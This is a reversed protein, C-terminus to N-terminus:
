IRMIAVWSPRMHSASCEYINASLFCCLMLNEPMILFGSRVEQQLLCDFILHLYALQLIMKNFLWYIGGSESKKIM